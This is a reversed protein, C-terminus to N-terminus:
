NYSKFNTTCQLQNALPFFGGFLLEIYGYFVGNLCIGQWFGKCSKGRFFFQKWVRGLTRQDRWSYYFCLPRLYIQHWIQFRQLLKGSFYNAIGRIGGGLLECMKSLAEQEMRSKEAKPVGDSPTIDGVIAISHLVLSLHWYIIFWCYILSSKIDWGILFFCHAWYEFFWLWMCGLWFEHFLTLYNLM